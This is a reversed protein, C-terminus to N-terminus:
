KRQKIVAGVEKAGHALLKELAVLEEDELYKYHGAKIGSEFSSWSARLDEADAERRSPRKIKRGKAVGPPGDDEDADPSTIDRLLENIGRGDVWKVLTLQVKDLKQRGDAVFIELKADLLPAVTEGNTLKHRRDLLKSEALFADAIRIYNALTSRSRKAFRSEIFRGLDGHAGNHKVWVLRLGVRVALFAATRVSADYVRLDNEIAVALGKEDEFKWRNSIEPANSIQREPKLVEVEVAKAKKTTNQKPM